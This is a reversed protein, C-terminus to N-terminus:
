YALTIRPQLAGPVGFRLASRVVAGRTLKGHADVFEWFGCEIICASM